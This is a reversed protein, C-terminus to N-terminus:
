FKLEQLVKRLHIRLEDPSVIEIGQNFHYFGLIFNTLGYFNKNVPAQFDFLEPKSSKEIYRKSAPFRETLENCAGVKLRLHVMLQDNDAIRFVDILRNSHRSENKWVANLVEVRDARSIRFHRITDKEVDFTQVTDEAPNIFFPEVLRDRISNSDSSRYGILLVQKKASKAVELQDIKDLYPERLSEYGLRRFDYLSALKTALAEKERLSLPLLDIAKRLQIQDDTSFHLLSALKSYSQRNAIYYRYEKDVKLEMGANRIFEFDDGITDTSLGYREAFDKKSYRRPHEAIALLIEVTRQRANTDKM